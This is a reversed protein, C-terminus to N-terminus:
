GEAPGGTRGGARRVQGAAERGARRGLEDRDDSRPRGRGLSRKPEPALGTAAPAGDCAGPRSPEALAPDRGVLALAISGGRGAGEAEPAHHVPDGGVGSDAIGVVADGTAVPPDLVRARRVVVAEAM